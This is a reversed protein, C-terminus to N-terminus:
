SPKLAAVIPVILLMISLFFLWTSLRLFHSKTGIAAIAKTTALDWQGIFTAKGMEGYADVFEYAKRASPPLFFNNPKRVLVAFFVSCIAFVFPVVAWRVVAVNEPKLNALVGLTFLGTGGGLYKIIDNAKDDIEKNIKVVRDYMDKAHDWVWGYDIGMVPDIAEAFKKSDHYSHDNDPNGSWIAAALSSLLSKPHRDSNM